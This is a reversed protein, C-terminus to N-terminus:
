TEVAELVERVQLDIQPLLAGRLRQVFRVLHILARVLPLQLRVPFLLLQFISLLQAVGAVVLGGFLGEPLEWVQLAPVVLVL